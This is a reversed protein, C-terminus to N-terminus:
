QPGGPPPVVPAPVTDPHINHQIAQERTRDVPFQHQDVALWSENWLLFPRDNNHLGQYTVSENFYAAHEGHMGVFGLISPGGGAHAGEHTTVGADLAESESQNLSLGSKVSDVADYNITINNGVTRGLNSLGNTSGADGFNIKINGTGEAGLKNLTKQLAKAEKSNPDLGKLAENAKAISDRYRQRDAQCQDDTGSCNGFKYLGTPDTYRLPNNETYAYRNWSQPNWPQGSNLLPDPQMFRGYQSSMYRAGFNDLGSEADREKGTFKYNQPCTNIPQGTSGKAIREGGFPYFDANYCPSTQGAQVMVRSTGLHDAVYYFLGGLPGRRAIRKGGFFFYETANNGQLNTEVLSDGSMGYWYLTGSSKQVRKGDGDYTYTVGASTTMQNGANYAYSGGGTGPVTILNGAADYTDGVVQNQPTVTANLSEQACGTYGSLASIAILNGWAGSSNPIDYTYSEGWCNTVTTTQTRASAIRNLPDYTFIQSRTTDRNNTIRMVNGNDSTGLNFNYKLDLLNAAAATSTCNTTSLPLPTGTTAYMWCPQLRNNFVYTSNLNTGNQIAALAGAPSYHANIAFNISNASDIASLPRGAGGPAYTITRLTPYVISAVSGDLNYTYVTNKTINNTTRQETLARGMPDYTWVASGAPDVMGTRRGIPNASAPGQDYSYTAVPSPMPCSQQTYAKSTLRNLADYCYSLTVTATGTQNQAPMVKSTLNGGADYTYTTAVTSLSPTTATNSEPNTSSTLQSLSNYTFRRVRWPSTLDGSPPGGCGTATVGGHQEVCTLNDLADYTYDTEYNRGAPDEFVQTLRGLSDSVSKRSKGAQDTVTTANGVYSTFVDNAPATTPCSTGSPPTSDPPVVLCTRGLADYLFTTVGNTPGPDNPTRYPNSVTAKRGVADYTTDVYTAGDPDSTLRHQIFRGLPDFLDQTTLPGVGNGIAMTTTLIRNPDDYAHSVSGGDPHTEQTPRGFYDYAFTAVQGNLDTSSGVLSSCSYYSIRSFQQLANTVKTVLASTPGGSPACANGGTQTTWSDTFDFYTSHGGPDTSQILNGVDNYVNVTTLNQGSTNLWRSIQSANGRLRYTSPFGTYDHQVVVGGTSAPQASDYSTQTKAVQSSNNYTTVSSVRDFIHVNDAAYAPNDDHLYTFTKRRALPGPGGAGWDYDDEETVNSYKGYNLAVESQQNTDPLITTHSTYRPNSCGSVTNYENYIINDCGFTSVVSKLTAGTAGKYDVQTPFPMDRPATSVVSNGLPDTTQFVVMAPNTSSQTASYTWTKETAATGDSSVSRTKVIETQGFWNCGGIASVDGFGYTYRIYGGTPLIMKQVEGTTPGDPYTVYQFQYRQGDPLQVSTLVNETYVTLVDNYQTCQPGDNGRFLFTMQQYSFTISQTSGTSDVYSISSLLKTNPDYNFHIIRGMTDTCQTVPGGDCAIQNGNADQLIQGIQTVGDKYRIAGGGYYLIYSGDYSWFFGSEPPSFGDTPGEKDILSTRTGDSGILTVFDAWFQCVVGTSDYGLCDQSNGTNPTTAMGAIAAKWGPVSWGDPGTSDLSTTANDFDTFVHTYGYEDPASETSMWNKSNFTLTLDTDLGRGRLHLLPIRLKLNGSAMDVSDNASLQYLTLPAGTSRAVEDVQAKASPCVFLLILGIAGLYRSAPYNSM